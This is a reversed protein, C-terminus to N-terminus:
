DEPLIDVFEALIFAQVQEDELWISYWVQDDDDYFVGFIEVITWQDVIRMVLDSGRSPYDRVNVNRANTEGYVFEDM